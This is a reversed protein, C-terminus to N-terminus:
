SAYVVGASDHQGKNCISRHPYRPVVCSCCSALMHMPDTGRTQFSPRHDNDISRRAHDLGVFTFVGLTVAFTVFHVMPCIM